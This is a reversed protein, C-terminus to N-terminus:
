RTVCEGIKGRRKNIGNKRFPYSILTIIHIVVRRTLTLQTGFHKMNNIFPMVQRKINGNRM